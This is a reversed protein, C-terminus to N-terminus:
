AFRRKRTLTLLVGIGFLVFTAPEPVTVASESGDEPGLGIIHIGVRLTGDDLQSLVDEFTGNNALDFTIQLWEDPNVGNQSTPADAGISFGDTVDFPPELLKAGPLNKPAAPQSFSTGPGSVINVNGLLPSDDLYVRVISSDISSENRFMFDITSQSDIVEVYLILDPSDYYGGSSTFIELPYVVGAELCSGCMAVCFLLTLFRLEKMLQM